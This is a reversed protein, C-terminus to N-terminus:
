PPKLESDLWLTVPGENVLAVEMVAGFVGTKVPVAMEKVQEVWLSFLKHAREPEEAEIFSPRRGKRLDGLLTFQSVALIEGQIRDDTIALNMKGNEDEFVRLGAVKRAMYLADKEDDGKQVGLLVLFGPGIRAVERGAVRVSAERVRQL